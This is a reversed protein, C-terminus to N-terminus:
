SATAKSSGILTYYPGGTPALWKYALPGPGYLSTSANTIQWATSTANKLTVFVIDPSSINREVKAKFKGAPNATQTWWVTAGGVSTNCINGPCQQSPSPLSFHLIRLPQSKKGLPASFQGTGGPVIPHGCVTFFVTQCDPDDCDVLSDGDNDIGDSCNGEFVHVGSYKNVAFLVDRETADGHSFFARTATKWSIYANAADNSKFIGNVIFYWADTKVYVPYDSENVWKLEGSSNTLSCNDVFWSFDYAGSPDGSQITYNFTVDGGTMDSALTDSLTVWSTASQRIACRLIDGASGTINTVTVNFADFTVPMPYIGSLEYLGAPYTIWIPISIVTVTAVTSSLLAIVPVALAAFLLFILVARM